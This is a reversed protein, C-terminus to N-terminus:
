FAGVHIIVSVDVVLPYKHQKSLFDFTGTGIADVTSFNVIFQDKAGLFTNYGLIM